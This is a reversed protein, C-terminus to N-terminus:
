KLILIDTFLAHKDKNEEDWGSTLKDLSKDNIIELNNESKSLDLFYKFKRITNIM